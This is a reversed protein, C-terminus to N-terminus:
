VNDKSLFSPIAEVTSPCFISSVLESTPCNHQPQSLLFKRFAIRVECCVGKLPTFKLDYILVM